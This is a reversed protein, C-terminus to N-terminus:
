TARTARVVPARARVAKRRANARREGRERGGARMGVDERVHGRVGLQTHALAILGLSLAAGERAGGDSQAHARTRTASSVHAAACQTRTACLEHM